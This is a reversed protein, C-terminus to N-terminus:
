VATVNGIRKIIGEFIEIGNLFGDLSIYEDIDHIRSVMNRRPAFGIAPIGLNRLYLMDSTAFCVVPQIDIDMEEAAKQMAIWYPNSDDISTAMSEDERRLYELETHPGTLSQWEDVMSQIDSINANVALRMDIVANVKNPIVNTAIGTQIINMNITSFSGFDYAKSSSMIQSQERRFHIVQDLLLQLKEVATSTQISSGHGGQGYFTMNLQWPRKDQYTAFMTNTPSTLGEDLAFGVNLRKFYQSKLFPKMGESGGREEDPIISIHITRELTVKNNILNRIAELHQISLSKTDQTGRGFLDGNEDIEGSFPPHSWYVEEATVVDSHSNLM